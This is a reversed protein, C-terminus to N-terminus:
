EFVTRKIGNQPQLTITLQDGHIGSGAVRHRNRQAHITRDKNLFLNELCAQALVFVAASFGLPPQFTQSILIQARVLHLSLGKMESAARYDKKEIGRKTRSMQRRMARAGSAFKATQNPAM